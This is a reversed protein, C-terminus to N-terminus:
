APYFSRNLYPRRVAADPQRLAGVGGATGFLSERRNLACRINVESDVSSARIGLIEAGDISVFSESTTAM